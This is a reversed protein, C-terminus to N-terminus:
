EAHARQSGVIVVIAGHVDDQRSPSLRRRNKLIRTFALEQHAIHPRASKGRRGSANGHQVEIVISPHVEGKRLPTASPDCEPAVM